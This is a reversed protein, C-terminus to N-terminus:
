RRLRRRGVAPAFRRPARCYAGRCRPRGRRSASRGAAYRSPSFADRVSTCSSAPDQSTLVTEFVTPPTPYEVVSDLVKPEAGHELDSGLAETQPRPASERGDPAHGGSLRMGSDRRRGLARRASRSSGARTALRCLQSTQRQGAITLSPPPPPLPRHISVLRWRPFTALRLTSAPNAHTSSTSDRELTASQRRHRPGSRRAGVAGHRRQALEMGFM